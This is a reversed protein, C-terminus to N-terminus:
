PVHGGPRLRPHGLGLRSRFVSHLPVLDGRSGGAGECRNRSRSPQSAELRDALLVNREVLVARPLHGAVAPLSRAGFGRDRLDHQAAAELREGGHAGRRCRAIDGGPRDPRDHRRDSADLQGQDGDRPRHVCLELVALRFLHHHARGCLRAGDSRDNTARHHTPALRTDRHGAHDRAGAAPAGDGVLGVLLDNRRASGARIARDRGSLRALDGTRVHARLRGGEALFIAKRGAVAVEGAFEAVPSLGNSGARVPSTIATHFRSGSPRSHITEQECTRRACRWQLRRESRAFPPARM